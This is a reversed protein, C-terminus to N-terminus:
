KMYEITKRAEVCRSDDPNIGIAELSKRYKQEYQTQYEPHKEDILYMESSAKQISKGADKIKSEAEKQFLELQAKKMRLQFYLDFDDFSEEEYNEVDSLLKKENDELKKGDVEDQKANEKKAEIQINDMKMRIDAEKTNRIFKDNTLPFDRGVHGIINEGYSDINQILWTSRSEASTETEYAGRFKILGFCGDNDPKAGTSPTFTFACYKQFDIPPDVRLRNDKVSEMDIFTTDILEKKALQLESDTLPPYISLKPRALICQPLVINKMLILKQNETRHVTNEMQILVLEKIKWNIIKIINYFNNFKFKIM